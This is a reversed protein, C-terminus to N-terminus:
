NVKTPARKADEIARMMFRAFEFVDRFRGNGNRVPILKSGTTVMSILLGDAETKEVTGAKLLANDAVIDVREVNKYEIFWEDSESRVLVGLDTILLTEQRQGRANNVYVGIPTAGRVLAQDSLWRSEDQPDANEISRYSALRSLIRRARSQVNM